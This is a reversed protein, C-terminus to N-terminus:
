LTTAGVPTTVKPMTGQIPAAPAKATTSHTATRDIIVRAAFYGRYFEPATFRFPTAMKDIQNRFLSRTTKILESVSGTAGSRGAFASRSANKTDEFKTTITKFAAIQDSTIGYPQLEAAHASAFEQVQQATQILDNDQMTDLSSKTLHLKASLNADGKKAAMAGLLHAFDLTQAELDNRVQTKEDTVGVTGAEQTTAANRIARTNTRAENVADAFAPRGSWINNHQDLFKVTAEFM